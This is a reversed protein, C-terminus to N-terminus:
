FNFYIFPSFDSTYIYSIAILFVFLYTIQRGFEPLRSLLKQKLPMAFAIAIALVVIFEKLYFLEGSIYVPADNLFFMTQLYEFAFEISPSAFFVWGIMVFFITSVHGIFPHEDLWKGYPTCKELIIFFGFWLGWVVFTWNAGHWLGTLGWVILLNIVLRKRTVRNGGLPIYVYERFWSGLSMHWRQWFESVTKSIYPYNFNELFTFGFMKGLGIAMDSYASFDFYIQLTYAIIGIWSIFVSLEHSSDFAYTATIALSDAIILKKGMGWIFRQVGEIFKELSERKRHTIEFEIDSYRVIPGAILQPFLSIYTLLIFFNKQVKVKGVYVDVVYSGLQFTYFSIGIPLGLGNLPLNIGLLENINSMFFDWYKFFILPFFVIVMAIIFYILRRKKNQTSFLLTSIYSIFTTIVLVIVMIPEGWSYFFLSMLLLVAIRFRYFPTIYYLVLCIPLFLFLFIASSFVM